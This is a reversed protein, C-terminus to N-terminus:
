KNLIKILRTLTIENSDGYIDLSIIKDQSVEIITESGKGFLCDKFSVFKDYEQENPRKDLLRLGNLAMKDDIVVYGHEKPFDIFRGKFKDRIVGNSMQLFEVIESPFVGYFYEYGGDFYIAFKYERGMEKSAYVKNLKQLIKKDILVIDKQLKEKTKLLKKEGEM